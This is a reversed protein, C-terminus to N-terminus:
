LDPGKPPWPLVEFNHAHMWKEAVKSTHPSTNDQQFIIKDEENRSMHMPMRRVLGKLVGRYVKRTINKKLRCLPGVGDKTIAGWVM